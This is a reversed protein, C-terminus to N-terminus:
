EDRLAKMPDIRSARRAPVYCALLTVLTLVVPVVVLSTRDGRASSFVATVLHAAGLSLVAGTAIGALTPAMGQRLVMRLVNGGTAGIAMRIGFERTRCIVSYAVLGYLGVMALLLGTFGMASVTHLIRGTLSVAPLQYFDEMTRVDFIPMNPDIGRVVERLPSALSASEGFSQAILTARQQPNQAWPLYLCDTPRERIVRYKSTKAVGVVVVWPGKSDGLRFRKGVADGEAGQAPGYKRALVENVVAVKPADATDAIQFGRGQLIPIDMTEFSRDDVVTSLAL